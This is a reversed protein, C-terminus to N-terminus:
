GHRSWEEKMEEPYALRNHKRDESSAKEDTIRAADAAFRWAQKFESNFHEEMEVRRMRHEIGFFIDFTGKEHVEEGHVLCLWEVSHVESNQATNARAEGARALEVCPVLDFLSPSGLCSRPQLLFFGTEWSHVISCAEASREAVLNAIPIREVQSPHLCHKRASSMLLGCAHHPDRFPPAFTLGGRLPM